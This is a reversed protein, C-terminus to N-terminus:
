IPIDAQLGAISVLNGHYEDARYPLHLSLIEFYAVVEEARTKKLENNVLLEIKQREIPKHRVIV